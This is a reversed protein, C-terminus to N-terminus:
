GVTGRVGTACFGYFNMVALYGMKEALHNWGLTRKLLVNFKKAYGDKV